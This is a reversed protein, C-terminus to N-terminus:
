VKGRRWRNMFSERPLVPFDRHKTWGRFPPPLRGIRGERKPLLAGGIAFLRVLLRYFRPAAAAQSWAYYLAGEARSVPGVGWDVDGAALIARLELLMRPLDIGIPCADKCAGCLTEGRCLDRARSIGVLLPTLVSGVPGSYPYGWAHGGIEGYVPCVNLCAACRICYLIERFRPDKLIRSRGNDIIVLHFEDPGDIEPGGVLGTYVAMNQVSTARPLLRLIAAQDELTAVVREMGMFVMQVGPLTAAMRINGENSVTTIHGTEAVALNCGTVGMDAALFEKRLAQRAIRTLQVPDETYSIGLASEFLRAVARRDRHIAAAIIHSPREGALQIIYEGLDTEVARIGAASFAANLGIEETVMSKGKVVHRVGRNQATKVAVATADRATKAFHVRGGANEVNAVLRELLVDLNEVARKRINRAAARLARSEPLADLAAAAGPGYRTQLNRLSEQLFPNRIGAAATQVYKEPGSETM